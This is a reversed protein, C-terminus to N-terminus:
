AQENEDEEKAPMTIEFCAGGNENNRATIAGGHARIISQCVCLGIGMNRRDDAHSNYCSAQGDFLHPFVGEPIGSGNDSILMHLVNDSESIEITIETTTEGHEVANDFLNVLVQEILTADMPALLIEEPKHVTFQVPSHNKRFNVIASSVIEEVM